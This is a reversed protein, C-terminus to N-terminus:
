HKSVLPLDQIIHGSTIFDLLHDLQTTTVYMRTTNPTEVETSRGHLLSNDPSILDIDHTLGPIWGQLTQYGVRDAIFSLIETDKHAGTAPM